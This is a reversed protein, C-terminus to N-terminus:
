AASDGPIVLFIEEGEGRLSLQTDEGLEQATQVGGRRQVSQVGSDAVRFGASIFQYWSKENKQSNNKM